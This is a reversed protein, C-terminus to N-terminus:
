NGNFRFKNMSRQISESAKSHPSTDYYVRSYQRERNSLDYKGNNNDAFTVLQKKKASQISSSSTHIIYPSINGENSTTIMYTTIKNQTPSDWQINTTKLPSQEYINNNYEPQASIYYMEPKQLYSPQYLVPSKRKHDIFVPSSRYNSINTDNKDFRLHYLEPRRRVSTTENYMPSISSPTHQDNNSKSYHTAKPQTYSNRHYNYNEPTRLTYIEPM